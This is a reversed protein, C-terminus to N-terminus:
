YPAWLSSCERICEIEVSREERVLKEEGLSVMRQLLPLRTPGLENLMGIYDSAKFSPAVILSTCGAKNLAFEVENLRYAPNITVLIAGIKATAFQIVTWEACNPAWIGVRDGKKLGDLM